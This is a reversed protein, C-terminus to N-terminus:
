FKDRRIRRHYSSLKLLHAIVLGIATGLSTSIIFQISIKVGIVEYLFLLIPTFVIWAIFISNFTPKKLKHTTTLYNISVKRNFYSSCKHLLVYLSYIAICVCIPLIIFSINELEM